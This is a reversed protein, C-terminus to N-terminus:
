NETPVKEVRDIILTDVMRKRTELKLGLQEQLAIFLTPVSDEPSNEVPIPSAVRREGRWHIVFDYTGKLGTEDDVPRDLQLSLMGVFQEMTEHESRVSYRDGLVVMKPGGPLLIAFGNKDISVSPQETSGSPRPGSPLEAPTDKADAFKPGGKAVVLAYVPMEKPETHVVLGFRRILLDKTMDRLDEKSAGPAVRANINFRESAL